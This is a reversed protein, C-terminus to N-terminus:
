KLDLRYRRRLKVKKGVISTEDFKVSKRATLVSSNLSSSSSSPTIGLKLISNPRALQRTDKPEHIVPVKVTEEDAAMTTELGGISLSSVSASSSSSSSDFEEVEFFLTAASDKGRVGSGLVQPIIQIDEISYMSNSSSPRELVSASRVSNTESEEEIMVLEKGSTGTLLSASRSKRLAAKKKKKREITELLLDALRQKEKRLQEQMRELQEAGELLVRQNQEYEEIQSSPPSEMMASEPFMRVLPEGGGEVVADGASSSIASDNLKRTSDTSLKSIIPSECQFAGEIVQNTEQTAAAAASEAPPPTPSPKLTYAYSLQQLSHVISQHSTHSGVSARTSIITDEEKVYEPDVLDVTEKAHIANSEILLLPIAKEPRKLQQSCCGGM